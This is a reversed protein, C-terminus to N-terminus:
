RLGTKSSDGGASFLIKEFSVASYQSPTQLTLTRQLVCFDANTRPM